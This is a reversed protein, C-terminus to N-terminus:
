HKCYNEKNVKIDNENVLFPKTVGSIMVNRSMKNTSAFLNDDSVDSKIGKGYIGDNQLNVPIDLTFDKEDQWVTKEIMRTNNEFKEALALARAYRRNRCGDNIEATKVRKFQRLNRRKIMRSISSRSIGTQKAIRRRELLTHPAEEQSCSLEEILDTNEEATVSRPRGSGEERNM